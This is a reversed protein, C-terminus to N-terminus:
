AHCYRPFGEGDIAAARTSRNSADLAREQLRATRRMMRERTM